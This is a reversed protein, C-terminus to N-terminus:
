PRARLVLFVGAGAVCSALAVGAVLVTTSATNAWKRSSMQVDVSSSSVTPYDGDSSTQRDGNTQNDPRSEASSSPTAPQDPSSDRTPSIPSDTVGPAGPLTPTMRIPLLHSLQMPSSGASGESSHASSSPTASPSSPTPSSPVPTTSSSPTSASEDPSPSPPTVPPSPPHPSTPAPTDPTSPEPDPKTPKTPDPTTVDPDPSEGPDVVLTLNMPLSSIWGHTGRWQQAVFTLQYIGPDSFSIPVKTLNGVDVIAVSGHLGKDNGVM